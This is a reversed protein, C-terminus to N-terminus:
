YQKIAYRPAPFPQTAPSQPPISPNATADVALCTLDSYWPTGRTDGRHSINMVYYLGAGNLKAAGEALNTNLVASQSDLGLRLVNVDSAVLRVTQGVKISPNLLVTMELGNQTLEPVGILGTSPSIMVADGTLYSTLPILQVHGDQISWTCGNNFAIERMEDRCLGFYTRGRPLRNQPLNPPIYGQSITQGTNAPAPQNPGGTPSVTGQAATVVATPSGLNAPVMQAIISQIATQPATGAALTLAMVSFNYAEDGDAATIALYSNKQDERGKRVQMISGKFILQPRDSGYSVMLMLQTFEPEMIKNATHDSLNYVKVDCSNPTQYDGRHVEFVVRFAGLEIGAGSPSAVVLSLNRLYQQAAM